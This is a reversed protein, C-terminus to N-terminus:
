YSLAKFNKLRLTRIGFKPVTIDTIMQKTTNKSPLLHQKTTGNLEVLDISEAFGDFTITQKAATNQPNFLRVVLDNGYMLMAPIELGQGSFSILSKKSNEKLAHSQFVTASMPNEWATNSQWVNSKDWKGTHPLIAYGIETPGTVDYDRGWLGVGAYQTTLSLPFNNGHEYSTTHNTFLALGYKEAGDTVDIWNLLVNNKISDWGKFFTNDLKSETVDFPANKYVKQQSLNLPFMTLLKGAGDYFAKRNDESRYGGHQKYGDGIGPKNQWNIKLKIDILPEDQLLTITQSFPQKNILGNISLKSCLAGDEIVTITAATQTGSFYGSDKYFYGRLENFSRANATDVFQKNGLNKAVLSKIVGGKQVDFIISYLNTEVKYNGDQLVQINNTNTHIKSKSKLQYTNYGISPVMAKFIVQKLSDTDIIQAEIEKDKDDVIIINKADFGTPLNVRVFENRAVAMTNFVRVYYNGTPSSKESLAQMSLRVSTDSINGTTTTWVQVKDIWTDGKKGNYPVIWCDHHQALLLGRWAEDFSTGSWALGNYVKAMAALKEATIIKNEAVRAQKAIQQLVQAGWVLSVQVDEQTFYWNPYTKTTTIQKFYNRWTKYRVPYAAPRKSLWPGEKWGADQLCMGIPNAIGAKFAAQSYATSNNAAMTQWTSGPQLAEIGYRPVTLLKTGDPGVWNVLEGGFARTYGGWCTNPNKLSAYKFGFSTLIQPLASTFCPEESSYTTFTAEPFHQRLKKIGYSFQRIISEGNINYLYAQGYAPNVYEMRGNFSQDAFYKKFAAYNEPENVQVSDWTEPEIELNINWGPNNDLTNTIFHTYQKPYHGYIGGHFGDIFYTNQAFAAVVCVQLVLSILIKRYISRSSNMM